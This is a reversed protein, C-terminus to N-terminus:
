RREQSRAEFVSGTVSIRRFEGADDFSGVGARGDPITTDIAELVPRKQKDVYVAIRGSAGDREVRVRHWASDRLQPKGKGDDIRRRNANNVLFIGNHVSDTIASLHVYYFRTPSEYGVVLNLDRHPNDVPSHSRLDVELAIERFAETKLIALAAPRRIPGAPVGAKSIM